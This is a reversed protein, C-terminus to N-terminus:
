CITKTSCEVALGRLLFRIWSIAIQQIKLIRWLTSFYDVDCGQDGFHAHRCSPTREDDEGIFTVGGHDPLTKHLTQDIDAFNAVLLLHPGMKCCQIIFDEKQEITTPIFMPRKRVTTVEGYRCLM